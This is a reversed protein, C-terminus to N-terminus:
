IAKKINNPINDKVKDSKHRCYKVILAVKQFPFNFSHFTFGSRLLFVAQDHM